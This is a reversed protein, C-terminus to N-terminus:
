SGGPPEDVLAFLRRNNAASPVSPTVAKAPHPPLPSSVAVGVAVASTVVAPLVVVSVLVEVGVSVLVGVGVSVLVGIGPPHLM